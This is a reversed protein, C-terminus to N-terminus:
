SADHSGERARGAAIGSCALGLAVLVGVLTWSERFLLVGFGALMLAGPLLMLRDLHLGALLYTLSVILLVAPGAGRPTLYGQRVLLISLGVVVLMIGWHALHRVGDRTDIQGIRKAHRYGLIMSAIWGAPGVIMWFLPVRTPAYDPLSMGVLCIAAWLWYISVPAPPAPRDVVQRVFTLDQELRGSESM